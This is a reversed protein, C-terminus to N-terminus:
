HKSFFAIWIWAVIFIVPIALPAYFGLRVAMSVGAGAVDPLHPQDPYNPRVKDKWDIHLQELAIKAAIVALWVFVAMLFGVWPIATVLLRLPAVETSNALQGAIDSGKEVLAKAHIEALKQVSFGYTAFLFGQIALNWNLRHNILDDERMMYQRFIKYHESKTINHTPSPAPSASPM